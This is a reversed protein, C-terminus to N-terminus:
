TFYLLKLLSHCKTIGEMPEADIADASLPAAPTESDIQIPFFWFLFVGSSIQLPFLFMACGPIRSVAYSVNHPATITTAM